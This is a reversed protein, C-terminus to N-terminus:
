DILAGLPQVRWGKRAALDLAAETMRLVADPHDGEGGGYSDWDHMLLVGGNKAEIEALVDDLPRPNWSDQSDITWWGFRVGDRWGSILSFLTIKGHPPRFLDAEGGLAQIARAGARFDRWAKGPTTKWANAHEFTHSGVEHGAAILREAAAERGALNRGLLFFTARVGRQQFLDILRGTTVDGPGDDYTLALVGERSCRAQLRVEQARRYVYPGIAWCGVALGALAALILVTALM